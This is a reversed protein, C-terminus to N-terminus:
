HGLLPPTPRSVSSLRPYYRLYDFDSADGSQLTLEWADPLLDSCSM